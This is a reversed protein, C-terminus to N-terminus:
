AANLRVRRYLAVLRGLRDSVPPLSLVRGSDALSARPPLAQLVRALGAPDRPACRHLRDSRPDLIEELVPLRTVVLPCGAADAELMLSPYLTTTVTSRYPLVLADLRRLLPAVPVLGALHVRRRVAEPLRGVRDRVEQGEGDSSLALVLRLEPRVVGALAFAELLDHVGKVAHAHGVYAVTVADSGLFRELEVPLSRHDEASFTAVNEIRTVDAFGQQRMAEAQARSAVLQPVGLLRASGALWRHNLVLRPLLFAPADRVEALHEADLALPAGESHVITRGRAIPLAACIWAFSPTPLVLHLLDDEGHPLARLMAWLRAARELAPRRGFEDLAAKDSNPVGEPLAFRVEVGESRLLEALSNLNSVQGGMRLNLVCFTVRVPPDVRKV